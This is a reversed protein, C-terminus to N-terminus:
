YSEGVEIARLKCISELNELVKEIDGYIEENTYRVVKYGCSELMKQKILDKAQTKEFDHTWGDLEVVLKLEECGFDVIKNMISFQRRFKYGLAKRRLYEWLIEEAKTPNTRLYQRIEKLRNTNKYIYKKDQSTQAM